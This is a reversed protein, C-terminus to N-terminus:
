LLSKEVAMPIPSMKYYMVAFWIYALTDNLFGTQFKVTLIYSKTKFFIYLYFIKFSPLLCGCMCMLLYFKHHCSLILVCSFETFYKWNVSCRLNCLNMDLPWIFSLMNFSLYRGYTHWKNIWIYLNHFIVFVVLYCKLTCQM